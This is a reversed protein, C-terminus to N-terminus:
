DNDLNEKVKTLLKARILNKAEISKKKCAESGVLRFLTVIDESQGIVTEKDNLKYSLVHNHASNITYVSFEVSNIIAKFSKFEESYSIYDFDGTQMANIYTLWFKPVKNRLRKVRWSNILKIM